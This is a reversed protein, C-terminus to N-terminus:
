DSTRRSGFGKAPLHTCLSRYQAELGRTVVKSEYKRWAEERNRHGMAIRLEPDAILKALALEVSDASRTTTILGNIGEQVIDPIGGVPTVVVPLGAAMAELLANPCGESYSPLVFIDSDVFLQAKDVGGVYGPFLVRDQLNRRICWERASSYENGDGAM